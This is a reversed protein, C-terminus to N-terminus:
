PTALRARRPGQLRLPEQALDGRRGPEVMRVDEGQVVRSLSPTIVPVAEEVVHHREDLALRQTITQTAFAGQAYVLGDADRSLHGVAKGVGMGVVDDVAVDLGPVDEELSPM